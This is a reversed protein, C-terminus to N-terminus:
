AKIAILSAFTFCQFWVDASSFGADCLRARHTDLSDTILVNELASRKQSIEMDSYGNARKFNHYLTTMLQQHADIEFEIKESLLLIGGPKLGQYIRNILAQRENPELFQLTFNLVVISADEIEVQQIDQHRIEVPIHGTDKAIAEQCRAVMASSNDIGIIQCNDAKIFHRMALTAAGLSCGLDYCRSNDQAFREAMDGIMSLITGYGPVSRQIMDTFVAAVSEDFRFGEVNMLPEAFLTDKNHRSKSMSDLLDTIWPPTIIAV